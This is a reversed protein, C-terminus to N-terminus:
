KDIKGASLNYHLTNSFPKRYKRIYESPNVGFLKSFQARFYKPDNIGVMYATELVTNDTNIFIQAAKRLRIFRIFSNPSQGSILKIKKFLGSSSMGIEAALVQINFERDTLHAEVVEICRDLFEKFELSIRTNNTKLTVQNLFYQQLNNKSKLINEVKARLVEKDFPKSIYDDAGGELGKLMIEPSANATLLIVPIYSIAQDQKVLSCLELGSMGPMMLDSIVLDPLLQQIMEYGQEGTAAEHLLYQGKFVQMIYARIEANDDIILLSRADAPLTSSPSAASPEMYSQTLLADDLLETLFGSREAETALMSSDALHERNIPLNLCFTTGLGLQSSYSVNGGQCEIFNRVLYLGIGFGANLAGSGGTEQYFRDYLKDGVQEAIGCGTDAVLIQLQEQQRTVSLRIKGAEPTFKIANSLLNFLAIELKERDAYIYIELESCDFEYSINKTRTQNLFCSYVDKCVAIINLRSLKVQDSGSGAKRFLLLQDVLSLLRAANKHVIALSAQDEANSSQVLLEKVPNIILTLPSRFEHSINTFFALKKENLEKEAESEIHAIRIEYKLQEQRNRYQIYLYVLGSCFLAYLLYAWYSRYWPPSIIITISRGTNNWLGDNNSAKVRLTYTGPNLNTYSARHQPGIFNWKKDFGELKYAYQNKESHTYNLAVFDFSFVNQDYPLQVERAIGLPQKLASTPGPSVVKNFIRFESFYVPSIETNYKLKEPNFYVVGDPGALYIEGTETQAITSNSFLGDGEDYNRVEGTQPNFRSLGKGTLVWLMGARDELLDYFVNGAFGSNSSYVQFSNTKKIYKNLGDPTCIWINQHSDLFVKQIINNSISGKKRDNFTYAYFRKQKLDFRNLGSGYTGVWINGAGDKLLSYLHNNNLSHPNNEENYYHLFRGTKSNYMKLGADTALWYQDPAAEVIDRFVDENFLAGLASHHVHHIFRNQGEEYLDFGNETLVWLQAKSDLYVKTIDNSTLSGPDTTHLFTKSKGTRLNYSFLGQNTAIWLDAGKVAVSRVDKQQLGLALFAFKYQNYDIKVLGGKTCVWVIGNSDYFMDGNPSGPIDGLRDWQNNQTNMAYFGNNGGVLLTNPGAPLLSFAATNAPDSSPFTKFVRTIPNFKFLGSWYCGVWIDGDPSLALSWVDNPNKRGPLQLQTYNSFRKSAKDFKNLGSSWNGLWLNNAKDEIIANVSKGKMAYRRKEDPQYVTFTNQKENYRNFGYDTGVWLVGQKDCLLSWIKNNSLSAPKNPIHYFRSSTETIPNFRNLGDMTGVWIQGNKDSVLANIYNSTISTSDGAVHVFTKFTYGDFKCLGNETGFWMFGRSDKIAATTNKAPLGERATFTKLAFRRFTNEDAQKIATQQAMSM